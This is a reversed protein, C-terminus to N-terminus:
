PRDPRPHDPGPYDPGPRDPLGRGRDSVQLPRGSRSDKPTLVARVKHTSGGSRRVDAGSELVWFRAKGEVGADWAAEVAFELEVPGVEFLVDEEARDAQLATLQERISAVADALDLRKDVM